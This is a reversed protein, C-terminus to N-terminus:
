FNSEEAKIDDTWDLTADYKNPFRRDLQKDAYFLSTAKVIAHRGHLGGDKGWSMVHYHYTFKKSKKANLKSNTQKNRIMETNKQNNM